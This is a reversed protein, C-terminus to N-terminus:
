EIKLVMKMIKALNSGQSINKTACEYKAQLIARSKEVGLHNIFTPKNDDQRVDKGASEESHEADIIDDRIQFAIGFDVASEKLNKLKANDLNCIIGTGVFAVVFLSSTKNRYIYEIIQRTTKNRKTILEVAEGGPMHISSTETSLINILQVKEEPIMNMESIIKFAQTIMSYCAIMAIGDGYIRHCTPKNRRLNANDIPPLDDFVLSGSHLIEVSCAFPLVKEIPCGYMEAIALALIPRLRKGGAFLSHRMAKHLTQPYETEKPLCKDLAEDIIKRKDELYKDINM